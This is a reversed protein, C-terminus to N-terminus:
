IKEYDDKKGSNKLININNRIQSRVDDKLYEIDLDLKKAIFELIWDEPVVKGNEICSMKSVSIRDECIYKLTYGKYIRARRIKEGTSLIEM